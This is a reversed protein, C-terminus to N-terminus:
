AARDRARLDCRMVADGDDVQDWDDVEDRGARALDEEAVITVVTRAPARGDAGADGLEGRRRVIRRGFRTPFRVVLFLHPGDVGGLARHRLLLLLFLLLPVGAPADPAEEKDIALKQM